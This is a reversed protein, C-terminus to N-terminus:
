QKVIKFTRSQTKDQTTKIIYTGPSFGSMDISHKQQSYGKYLLNGILNFIEVTGNKELEITCLSIVPNPYITIKGNEIDEVGTVTVQESDSNKCGHNDTVTVSYTGSASVVITQTIATTSWLYESFGTGADLTANGNGSTQTINVTPLPNVVVVVQDAIVGCSGNVTATYTKTESPTFPVGDVVGNDWSLTGNTYSATLTVQGGQCVSADAGANVTPLPNVTIVVEDSAFCDDKAVSVSYTDASGIEITQTTQGDPGWLYTAGIVGADLITTSGQCIARDAGLNVNFITETIVVTGNMTISGGANTAVCTYSGASIGTWELTSGTIGTKASGVNANSADKLQYSAGTESNSLLISKGGTGQCYAGSGTLNYVTPKPPNEWLVIFNLENYPPVVFDGVHVTQFYEGKSNKQNIAVVNTKQITVQFTFLAIYEGEFDWRYSSPCSQNPPCFDTNGVQFIGHNLLYNMKVTDCLALDTTIYLDYAKTVTSESNVYITQKQANSYKTGLIVILLILFLKLAKM